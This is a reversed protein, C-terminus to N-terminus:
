NKLLKLKVAKTFLGWRKRIIINLHTIKYKMRMTPIIGVMLNLGSPDM